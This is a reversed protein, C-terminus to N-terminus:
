KKRLIIRQRALGARTELCQKYDPYASAPAEAVNLRYADQFMVTGDKASLSAEYSAVNSDFDMEAPLSYVEYGEPLAITGETTEMAVRDWFLGFERTPRGVQHASYSVAPLTFMMLDEGATVAYGPIRCHLTLTPQATLDAMDSIEYDELSASPHLFAAFQTLRNRLMQEDLDKLGRLNAQANGEATYTVSLALSGDGSLRAEFRTSDQEESPKPQQTQVLKHQEGDFVIARAGQLAAPLTGFMLVDSEASTFGKMSPLYVASRDFLHLSPTNEPWPGAGRSRVLALRAELGAAELMRWYLVNKDLENAVGRQATENPDHPVIRFHWHPVPATRINRAVFNRVAAAGGAAALERARAVLADSLPPLDALAQGYADSLEQWTVAEALTLTPGIHPLPPMFPESPMGPQTQTLKWLYGQEAPEEEVGSPKYLDSALEKTEGDPTLVIVEKRQIPEQGRFVAVNYVPELPGGRKREVTYQMDIVSGPRPEKCAFRLRALRQYEPLRSYLSESKLAADSLHLVRGDPAITLAFDVRPEDTGEFYWVNATAVDEGRQQLILAIHRVTEKMVGEERLDITQRHLLTVYGAAPFAERAPLNELCAKLEPDTIQDVTEVDDYTRARQLQIKLVDSKPFELVGEPTEFRVMDETMENLTGPHQEGDRLYLTDAAVPAMMVVALILPITHRMRIM